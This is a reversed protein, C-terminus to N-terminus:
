RWNPAQVVTWGQRVNAVIESLTTTEGFPLKLPDRLIFIRDGRSPVYIGKQCLYATRRCAGTYYKMEWIGDNCFAQCGIGIVPIDNPKVYSYVCITVPNNIDGVDEGDWEIWDM